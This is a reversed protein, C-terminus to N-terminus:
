EIIRDARLLVIHRGDVYGLDRLGDRFAEFLAPFPPGLLGDTLYVVRYQPTQAPVVGGRGIVVSAAIAGTIVLRRPVARATDGNM